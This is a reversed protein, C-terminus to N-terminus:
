AGAPADARVPPAFSAAPIVPAAPVSLAAPAVVRHRYEFFRKLSLFHKEFLHWSAFAIVYSVGIAGLLIAVQMPIQSGFLQPLPAGGFRTRLLNRLPIHLLYLAYSYKGFSVLTASTLLGHLRGGRPASIAAVLFAAFLVALALYGVLQVAPALAPLFSGRDASAVAVLVLAASTAAVAPRVCLKLAPIGAPGRGVLAILAGIALADMRAPMLAYAAVPEAALHLGIRILTAAVVAGVCIRIMGRRSTAWVLLPWVLYFQEEVALSWLHTTHGPMAEWGGLAFRVNGLYTWLWFVNDFGRYDPRTAPVLLPLVVFLLTLYAYYLPFIRLTRRMYFNRFYWEGGKADYLIGTILFGSLVFFLDVGTWGMGLVRVFGMEMTSLPRMITFHLVLVALVAIGRLGDLAPIHGGLAPRQATEIAPTTLPSAASTM